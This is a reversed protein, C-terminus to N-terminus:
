AGPAPARFPYGYAIDWSSVVLAGEILIGELDPSTDSESPVVETAVSNLTPMTARVVAVVAQHLADADRAAAPTNALSAVAMRLRRKERQGPKSELADSNWRVVILYAGPDLRPPQQPNRVVEVGQLAPAAELATAVADFLQWRLSNATFHIPM